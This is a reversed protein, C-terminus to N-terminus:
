VLMLICFMFSNEKLYYIFIQISQILITGQAKNGDNSQTSEASLPHGNWINEQRKYSHEFFHLLKLGFQEGSHQFFFIDRCYVVTLPFQKKTWGFGCCGM